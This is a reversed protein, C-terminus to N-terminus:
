TAYRLCAAAAAPAHMTYLEKSESSVAAYATSVAVSFNFIRNLDKDITIALKM